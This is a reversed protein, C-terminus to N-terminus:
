LVTLIRIEVAIAVLSTNFNMRTVLCGVKISCVIGGRRAGVNSFNNRGRRDALSSRRQTVTACRNFLTSPVSHGSTDPRM